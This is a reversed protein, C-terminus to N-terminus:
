QHKGRNKLSQFLKMGMYGILAAFLLQMIINRLLTFPPTVNNSLYVILEQIEDPFSLVFHYIFLPIICCFYYGMFLNVVVAYVLLGYREIKRIRLLYPTFAVPIRRLRKCWYSLLERSRLRLNPVGLLDSVLWYGDFKFFPNLTMAFGLNMILIMYRLMDNGTSFFGVLLLILFFSQFYVGAINVVCRQKRNLKWVETVDTYLVPFNLYLGLGIGGHRVGFHKCASAHGLEHFFSSALMFVSLGILTYANVQNDFVLLDDTKVFFYIDMFLALICVSLMYPKHFLFHFTDSFRDIAVASFLEKEYLFSHKKPQSESLLPALFRSIILEVQEPTYKGNKKEVYATIAEEQTECQQLETLLEVTAHSAEYYQNNSCLLYRKEQTSSALPYVTIEAYAKM